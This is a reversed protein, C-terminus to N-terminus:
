SDSRETVDVSIGSGSTRGPQDIASSRPEAISAVAPEFESRRVDSLTERRARPLSSIEVAKQRAQSGAPTASSQHAAESSASESTTSPENNSKPHGSGSDDVAEIADIEDQELISEIEESFTGVSFLEDWNREDFVTQYATRHVEYTFRQTWDDPANAPSQGRWPTTNMAFSSEGPEVPRVDFAIGPEFLGSGNLRSKGRRIKKPDALDGPQVQVRDLVVTQKTHPHDGGYSVNVERVYRPRDENIEFVLDVIGDQETFHPVPNVSAFYHGMDGYYGLMRTVDKSLPYSNFMDGPQLKSDGKLRNTAIISNGEFRIERVAYRRGETVRYHLNVDAHDESLRPQASGEVDVFGVGRYYQKIAEVDAPITDPNYLGGFVLFKQKSLLNKRLDGDSWFVNGSFTREAVQVRPGETVRIVVEREGPQNGKILEAKVFYYGKDRYEQEIRDVAERNALPDYPSGEKLGTWAKLHKDKVRMNFMKSPKVPVRVIVFEVRKVIPREHVTFVLVLGEPTQDIREKVEFFWRTSMLSRKDERIMRESVPREPQCQIKQLIYSEPITENGEIRIDHVVVEGERVGAREEEQFAQSVVSLPPAITALLGTLLLCM